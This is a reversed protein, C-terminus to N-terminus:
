FRSMWSITAYAGRNDLKEIGAWDSMFGGSGSIEGGDWEYRLFMGARGSDGDVNGAAGAEVGTSLAPMLRWGLRVRGAYNEHLTGYSLDVSAWAQESVTWWTELLAKAGIGAGQAQAEPDVPDIVQDIFMAGGYLKLTVPGVQKQYGLLLDAFSVSGHFKVIQSGGGVPRPGSYTYAGYGGATRLRLGDDTVAGFPAATMGTYLSWAQHAAEAGASIEYQPVKATEQAVVPRDACDLCLM